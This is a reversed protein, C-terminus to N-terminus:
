NNKPKNEQSIRWRPTSSQKTFTRLFYHMYANSCQSFVFIAEPFYPHQPLYVGDVVPRFGGIGPGARRLFVLM